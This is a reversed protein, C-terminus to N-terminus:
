YNNFSLKKAVILIFIENKTFNANNLNAFKKKTIIFYLIPLFGFCNSINYSIM